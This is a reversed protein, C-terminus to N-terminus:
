SYINIVFSLISIFLGGLFVLYAFSLYTFKKGLVKRVNYSEKYMEQFVNEKGGKLLNDLETSYHEWDANVFENGMLDFSGFFFTQYSNSNKDHIFRNGQPRSALISLFITIFSFTLIIISPLIYKENRIVFAIVVSIIISNVNILLGAKGDAVSVLHVYNRFAIKFLDETEKDSFNKVSKTSDKVPKTEPESLKQIRKDLRLYNKDRKETYNELAYNTYFASRVFESKVSSLLELEDYQRENLRNHEEKLFSLHVIIDDIAFRYNIADWAVSEVASNPYNYLINSQISDQIKATEEIPYDIKQAFEHLLKFNTDGDSMFSNYGAFRFCIILLANEYDDGELGAEKALIKGEKILGKIFPIGFYFSDDSSSQYYDQLFDLALEYYKIKSKYQKKKDKAMIKRPNIKITHCYNQLLILAIEIRPM